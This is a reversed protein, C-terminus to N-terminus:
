SFFSVGVCDCRTHATREKRMCHSIDNIWSWIRIQANSISEETTTKEIPFWDASKEDGNWKTVFAAAQQEMLLSWISPTFKENNQAPKAIAMRLQQKPGSKLYNFDLFWQYCATFDCKIKNTAAAASNQRKATHCRFYIM